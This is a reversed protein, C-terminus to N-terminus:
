EEKRQQTIARGVCVSSGALEDVGYAHYLAERLVEGVTVGEQEALARVKALMVDTVRVVMVHSKPM